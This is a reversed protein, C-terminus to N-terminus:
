IRYTRKVRQALKFLNDKFESTTTVTYTYINTCRINHKMNLPKTDIYIKEKRTYYITSTLGESANSM